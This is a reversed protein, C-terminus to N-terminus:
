EAALGVAKISGRKLVFLIEMSQKGVCGIFSSLCTEAVVPLGAM